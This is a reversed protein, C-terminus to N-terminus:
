FTLVLRLKLSASLKIANLTLALRLKFSATLIKGTRHIHIKYKVYDHMPWKDAFCEVLKYSSVVIAQSTMTHFFLYLDGLKLRYAHGKITVLTTCSVVKDLHVYRGCLIKM